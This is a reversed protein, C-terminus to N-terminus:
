YAEDRSKGNLLHVLCLVYFINCLKVIEDPHILETVDRVLFEIEANTKKRSYVALPTMFMM